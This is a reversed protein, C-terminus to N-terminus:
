RKNTSIAAPEDVIDSTENEASVKSLEWKFNITLPLQKKKKEPSVFAFSFFIM